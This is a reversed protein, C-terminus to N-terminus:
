FNELMMVNGDYITKSYALYRADPSARLAWLGCAWYRVEDIIKANGELDISLIAQRGFHDSWATAFLHKGDAAWTVSQAMQWSGKRPLPVLNHDAITLIQIWGSLSASGIAIRTGDSSLSWDIARVTDYVDDLDVRQIEAGKGNITDLFSFILQKGKIEALVCSKGARPCRYSYDGASLVSRTGGQLPVTMVRRSSPNSSDVLSFLLHDGDPTLSADEYREDGSILAKPTQGDLSQSYIISKNNKISSYFIAASDRSWDDPYNAWNDTTLRKAKPSKSTRLDALYIATNGSRSLYILRHGDGDARIQAPWDSEGTALWTPQGLRKGTDPDAKLTWMDFNHRFPDSVYYVIRGGPLWYLTPNGGPALDSIITTRHGGRLDCAEIVYGGNPRSSSFLLLRSSPSWALTGGFKGSDLSLIRHPGTGDSGVLWLAGFDRRFFAVYSGDPSLTPAFAEGDVIQQYTGDWVSMKWVGWRGHRVILLHSGDPFWDWPTSTETSPLDRLDGSDIDLVHVKDSLYSTYALHRGDRSFAVGGVPDGSADATLQKIVIAAHNRAVRSIAWWRWLALAGSFVFVSTLVLIWIARERNEPTIVSPTVVDASSESRAVPASAITVEAHSGPQSSGIFRYGRRPLTEIFHPSEANDDLAARLRKMANNLGQEFDVFTDAPWLRKQLDERTIVEGPRELLVALIEVPKGQLRIKMGQKRLEESRVDLEFVGFRIVTSHSASTKVPVARCSLYHLLVLCIKAYSGTLM